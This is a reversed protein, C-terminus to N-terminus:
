PLAGNIFEIRMPLFPMFPLLSKFKAPQTQPILGAFYAKAKAISKGSLLVAAQEFDIVPMVRRSVSAKWTARGTRDLNVQGVTRLELAESLPMYGETIDADLIITAVTVLDSQRFSLGKFKATIRMTAKDSPQGIEGVKEELLIDELQLSGQILQLGEDQEVTLNKQAQTALQDLLQEKLIQYDKEDPAPVQTSTGGSFPAENIVRVQAGAEGALSVISEAEINGIEGALLAQADAQITEGIGAPLTASRTLVFFGPEKDNTILFSGEPLILEKGSLNTLTVIGQAKTAAVTAIGSSPRSLEASTEIYVPFAPIGGAPNIATQKESASFEMENEQIAVQPYFTIEASPFIVLFLALLAALSVAMAVMRWWPKVKDFLFVSPLAAKKAEFAQIGRPFRKETITSPVSKWASREAANISAFLPIEKELAWDMIVPHHTVLALEAGNAQANRQLLVLDLENSLIRGRKPWVLLVRQCSQWAMKDKISIVDDFGELQIVLTKM